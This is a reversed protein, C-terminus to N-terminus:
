VTASLIWDTMKKLDHAWFITLGRKQADTVNHEKYVGSLVAAPVVQTAGMDHNWSSAKVAADNNLRKVSNTSSNSVKCEVPMIREDFLGIIFDAKRGGFKSEACFEGKQPALKISAVTRPHVEKFGIERLAQAVLEEQQKKGNTRRNTEVKRTAILSASAIIAAQKEAESPERDESVWVFRRRDLGDIIVQVAKKVLEPDAKLRSATLSSTNALIKLDDESVPPGMLYRVAEQLKSDHFIPEAMMRIQSLDVTQELLTEIVGQYEDFFGLYEELPEEVRSSRFRDIAIAINKCIEEKTWRPAELM